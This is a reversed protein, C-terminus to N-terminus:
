YVPLPKPLVLGGIVCLRDLGYFEAFSKLLMTITHPRVIDDFYVDPNWKLPSRDVM